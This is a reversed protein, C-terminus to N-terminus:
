EEKQSKNDTLMSIIQPYYKLANEKWNDAIKRAQEMTGAFIELSFLKYTGESISCNVNIKDVDQIIFDADVSLEYNLGKMINEVAKNATLTMASPLLYDLEKLIDVGKPTVMFFTSGDEEFNAIWEKEILDAVYQQFYFYNLDNISFFINELVSNTIPSGIKNLIYIILLKTEPINGPDAM